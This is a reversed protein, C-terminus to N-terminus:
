PRDPAEPAQSDPVAQPAPVGMPYAREIMRKRAEVHKPAERSTYAVDYCHCCGFYRQGPPLYLKGERAHCPKGNIHLPCLFWWRVGGFRTPQAELQVAYALRDPQQKGPNQLSYRLRLVSQAPDFSYGVSASPNEWRWVGSHPRSGLGQTSITFCESETVREAAKEKAEARKRDRRYTDLVLRAIALRLGVPTDPRKLQVMLAKIIARLRELPIDRGEKLAARLQALDRRDANEWDGRLLGGGGSPFGFDETPTKTRDGRLEAEAARRRERKRERRSTM